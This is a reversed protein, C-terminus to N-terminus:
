LHAQFSYFMNLNTHNQDPFFGKEQEIKGHGPWTPLGAQKKWFAKNYLYSAKEYRRPTIDNIKVDSDFKPDLHGDTM